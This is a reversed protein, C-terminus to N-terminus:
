DVHHLREHGVPWFPRVRLKVLKGNKEESLRRPNHASEWGLSRLVTGATNEDGQNLKGDDIKLVLSLVQGTTVGSCDVCPCSSSPHRPTNHQVDAKDLRDLLWAGVKEAWPHIQQRLEQEATCLSELHSDKEVWFIAGQDLQHLAEAWLQDRDERIAQLDIPRITAVRVPWWRRNGTADKLYQAQNTSGAFVCRRKFDRAVRGFSPRYTDVERTVFAKTSELDHRSLASLEGLEIIWKGRITEAAEKTGIKIEDDFFLDREPCLAQLATSKQEGQKGEFVLVCDVKEGPRLARAVASILWRRGVESTYENHVAGMYVSLWSDIRPQGDWTGRVKTFYDKLPDIVLRHASLEVAQAVASVGLDLHWERALWCQVRTIDADTAPGLEVKQPADDTHWEPTKVLVFRDSLAQYAFCGAVRPDRALITTANAPTVRLKGSSARLLTASVAALITELDAPADPGAALAKTRSDQTLEARRKDVAKRWDKIGVDLKKVLQVAEQFEKSFQPLRAAHEITTPDFADALATPATLIEQLRAAHEIPPAITPGTASAPTGSSWHTGTSKSATQKVPAEVKRPHMAGEKVQGRITRRADQQTDPKWTTQVASLLWELAVGEDVYGGGVLGGIAFGQETCAVHHAGSPSHAIITRAKELARQVYAIAGPSGPASIPGSASKHERRQPRTDSEDEQDAPEEHYEHSEQESEEPAAPLGEVELPQGVALWSRGAEEHAGSSTTYWYRAADKSEARKLSLGLTELWALARDREGTTIDRALRVVARWYPIEPTHSKTTIIIADLGAAQLIDRAQEPSVHEGMTAVMVGDVKRHTIVGGDHEVTLVTVAEINEKKRHDGHFTCPSWGPHADGQFLPPDTPSLFACLDAWSMAERRGGHAVNVAQWHTIHITTM